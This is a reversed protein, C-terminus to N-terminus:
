ISSRDILEAGDAPRGRLHSGGLRFRDGKGDMARDRGAVKGPQAIADARQEARAAARRNDAAVDCPDVGIGHRDVSKRPKLERCSPVAALHLETM